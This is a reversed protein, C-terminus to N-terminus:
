REIYPYTVKDRGEENVFLKLGLPVTFRNDERLPEVEENFVQLQESENYDATIVTYIDIHAAEVGNEPYVHMWKLQNFSGSAMTWSKDDDNTRPHAGWSGEGIFMTGNLDDRVYGMESTKSITDPKLPYTIKHMHSDADLSINLGYKQFLFAWQKYQYANEGKGATHPWFPKHYAAVKFTSPEHNKLDEELWEKQAGGQEIQSNLAILHFLDGGMTLSYYVGSTDNKQSPTDFIINLNSMNGDEHNGHVAVIPIMRGDETTTMSNWDTLWQKWNNPDTGNGSTFDGNFLVFLPRLKAVVRNSARGAELVDGESKTDGGAIFTFAQPRDPATKFWYRATLGASDKVVFYYAKDAQLDVLSVYRTNMGYFDLERYPSQHHAYKWYKRDHDITDYYVAFEQSDMGDWIISMTTAPDDNWVLRMTSLEALEEPIKNCALTFVSVFALVIIMFQKMRNFNIEM